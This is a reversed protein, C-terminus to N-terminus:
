GSVHVPRDATDLYPCDCNFDGGDTDSKEGKIYTHTYVYKRMCM